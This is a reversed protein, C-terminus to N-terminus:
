SKKREYLGVLNADALVHSEMEKLLDAKKTDDPLQLVTDLAYLTFFYRHSGSPPNPGGYENKEWSNRCSRIDHPLTDKLGEPLTAITTPINYILWHDWTGKPADPDDCILVLSRTGDPIDQWRLPPSVDEGQATYKVPINDYNEFASSMLKM